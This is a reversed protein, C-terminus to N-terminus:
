TLHKTVVTAHRTQLGVDHKYLQNVTNALPGSGHSALAYGLTWPLVGTM